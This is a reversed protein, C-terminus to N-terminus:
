WLLLKGSIWHFSYGSLVTPTEELVFPQATEKLADVFYKMTDSTSTTRNATQFVIEGNAHAIDIGFSKARTRGILDHGCGTNMLGNMGTEYGRERM